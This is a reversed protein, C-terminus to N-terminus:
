GETIDVRLRAGTAGIAQYTTGSSLRMIAPEGARLTAFGVFSGGAAIGIAATQITSTSLNQLFALGVSSLNGTSISVANTSLTLTQSLMGTNTMNATVGNANVTNSLFGKSVRYTISYNIDSM